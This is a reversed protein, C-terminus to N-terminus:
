EFKTSGDTQLGFEFTYHRDAPRIFNIFDQSSVDPNGKYYSIIRIKAYNGEATKVVLTTNDKPIITHKPGTSADGTYIYWSGASEGYNSTPAENVDSFPTNLLIIGAGNGTNAIINTGDLGIDWSTSLSDEIMEGSELDFFTYTDEHYLKESEATQLAYTFTYYKDAPRTRLNAFEETSTDPNGKYYSHMKLKAFRGTATKIILTEDNNALIAHKPGNPAEGTYTFWTSNTAEFGSTTAQKVDEYPTSLKLIGGGNETNAMLTTGSFAIDWVTSTSDSIPKGTDFDYYTTLARNETNAQVDTDTFEDITNVNAPIDKVLQGEVIAPGSNSTDNCAYFSLSILALFLYITKRPFTM